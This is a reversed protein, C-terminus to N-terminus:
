DELEIADCLDNLRQTFVEVQADTLGGNENARYLECLVVSLTMAKHQEAREVAAYLKDVSTM